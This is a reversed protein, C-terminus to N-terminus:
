IYDGTVDRTYHIKNRAVYDNWVKTQLPDLQDATDVLYYQNGARSLLCKEIKNYEVIPGSLRIDSVSISRDIYGIVLRVMKHSPGDVEFVRWNFLKFASM